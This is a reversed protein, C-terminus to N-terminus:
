GASVVQEKHERHWRKRAATSPLDPSVQGCACKARGPGSTRVIGGLSLVNGNEDHPYGERALGHGPVQAYTHGVSM